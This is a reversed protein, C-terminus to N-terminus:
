RYIPVEPDIPVHGQKFQRLIYIDRFNLGHTKMLEHEDPTLSNIQNYLWKSYGEPPQDRLMQGFDKDDQYQKSWILKTNSPVGTDDTWNKSEPIGKLNTV